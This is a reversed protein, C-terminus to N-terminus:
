QPPVRYLTETLEVDTLTYNMWSARVYPAHGKYVESLTKLSDVAKGATGAVDALGEGFKKYKERWGLDDETKCSM